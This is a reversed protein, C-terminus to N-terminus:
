GGEGWVAAVAPAVAGDSREASPAAVDRWDVAFWLAAAAAAAVVGAAILKKMALGTFLTAAAAAATSGTVADVGVALGFLARRSRPEACLRTRLEARARRLHARVADPSLDRQAGLSGVDIGEFYHLLVLSRQPESLGLVCAVLRQHLEARAVAEDTAEVREDRALMAHRADRRRGARARQRVSNRLLAAFWGRLNDRHRPPSRLAALWADQVADDVGHADACLRLALRRVQDGHRLLADLDRDPDPSRM